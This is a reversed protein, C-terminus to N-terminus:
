DCGSIGRVNEKECGFTTIKSIPLQSLCIVFNHVDRFELYSFSQFVIGMEFFFIAMKKIPRKLNTNQLFQMLVQHFCCNNRVVSKLERSGIAMM